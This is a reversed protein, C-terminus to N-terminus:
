HILGWILAQQDAHMASILLYMTALILLAPIWKDNSQVKKRPLSKRVMKVTEKTKLKEELYASLDEKKIIKKSIKTKM